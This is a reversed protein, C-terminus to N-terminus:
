RKGVFRISVFRIRVGMNIIVCPRRKAKEASGFESLSDISVIDVKYLKNLRKRKSVWAKIYKASFITIFVLIICCCIIWFVIDM